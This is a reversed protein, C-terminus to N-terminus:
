LKERLNTLGVELLIEQLEDFSAQSPHALIRDIRAEFDDPVYEFSACEAIAGKDSIFYQENQAYIIQVVCALIRHMCGVLSYLDNREAAVKAHYNAFNAMWSFDKIIAEKLQSPYEMVQNKLHALHGKEDLLPICINLEALYMYSYFGTVPQQYYDLKIVGAKSQDIWNQLTDVSRYLFDVRQGSVRLWAGGDVWQGWGGFDTVTPNSDDNHQEALTRIDNTAFPSADQYYIGIDIDSSPTAKERAFSGGLAIAVVGDIKSLDNVLESVILSQKTTFQKIMM